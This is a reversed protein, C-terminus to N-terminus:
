WMHYYGGSELVDVGTAFLESLIAPRLIGAKPGDAHIRGQRLCVV